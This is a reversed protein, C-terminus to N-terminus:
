AAGLRSASPSRHDRRPAPQRPCLIPIAHAAVRIEHAGSADTVTIRKARQSRMKSRCGPIGAVVGLLWTVLRSKSMPPAAVVDLRGDFPSADTVLPMFRRYSPVNAVLVVPADEAMAIGDADVRLSPLPARLLAHVARQMYRLYRPGRHRPQSGSMEVAHQVQTLFGFGQNALFLEDGILGADLLEVRGRELTERIGAMTARLDLAAAFINGFGTPVPLLPVGADHSVRALENLTHDGGIGILCASERLQRVLSAGSRPLDHAIHLRARYGVSGLETALRRGLETGSGNGSQQSAVILM